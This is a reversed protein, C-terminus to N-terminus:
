GSRYVVTLSVQHIQLDAFNCFKCLDSISETFDNGAILLPNNDNWLVKSNVFGSFYKNTKAHTIIYHM